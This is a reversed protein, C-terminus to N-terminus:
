EKVDPPEGFGLPDSGAGRPLVLVPCPALRMVRGAVGGLLARRLPGYGRSGLLLLDLDKAAEAIEEAPDGSLLRQEVSLESPVRALAQEFVESAAEESAAKFEEPSLVTTPTFVSPLPEVVALLVLAGHLGGALSIGAELASWSESAGNVAVGIRLLHPEGEAAYGRPAVAVACPAGSLLSEGTSGLLVRGLDGRHTSGVVTVLPPDLEALEHLARAASSGLMARTELEHGSLRDKALALHDKARGFLPESLERLALKVNEPGMVQEPLRVVDVVLPQADLVEALVGGLALADESQDSGDYGIIIKRSM